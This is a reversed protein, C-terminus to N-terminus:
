LQHTALLHARQYLCPLPGRQALQQTAISKRQMAPLAAPAAGIEVRPQARMLGPLLGALLPRVVRRPSLDCRFRIGLSPLDLELQQRGARATKLEARSYSLEAEMAGLAEQQADLQARVQSAVLCFCPHSSWPFLSRANLHGFLLLRNCM